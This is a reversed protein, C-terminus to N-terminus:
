VEVIPGTYVRKGWVIYYILSFIVTAGFVLVSYNMTQPTVTSNPPFFSFFIIIPLYICAIGNNAIGLAGPIKWPGWALKGTAM